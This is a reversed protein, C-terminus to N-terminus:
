TDNTWPERCARLDIRQETGASARLVAYDGDLTVEDVGSPSLDGWAGAILRGSTAGSLYILTRGTWGDVVWFERRYEIEYLDGGTSERKELRFRPLDGEPPPLGLFKRRLNTGIQSPTGFRWRWDRDLSAIVQEVAAELSAGDFTPAAAALLRVAEGARVSASLWTTASPAIMAAAADRVAQIDVTGDLWGEVLGLAARPQPDMRYIAERVPLAQRCAFLAFRAARPRDEEVLTSLWSWLDDM